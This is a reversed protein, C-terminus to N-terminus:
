KIVTVQMSNGLVNKTLYRVAFIGPLIPLWFTLLRFALVGTFAQGLPVGFAALGVTLAAETAGLGGPTPSSSAVASGGLYVLLVTGFPVYSGFAELSCYFALTYTLTVGLSGFALQMFKSPNSLGHKFVNLTERTWHRLLRKVRPIFLLGVLALVVIVGVLIAQHYDTDPPLQFEGPSVVLVTILLLILHMFIGVIYILSVSAMAEIRKLGNKELYQETLIIGGVGKPTIRNLATTAMQLLLTYSFNLTKTTSGVVVLAAMIYSIASAGLAALLWKIDATKIVSLSQDFEGLKPLLYYISLGIVLLLFFWRYNIRSLRAQRAALSHSQVLVQQTLEQMLEPESRVLKKTAATLALPQLYPLCKKLEKAGLTSVAAKVALKPNTLASSSVLLEVVDKQLAVDGAATQAFSFDIIWPQRRPDIMINATRLDRHAIRHNHLKAVEEWIARLLSENIHGKFQSLIKGEIKQTVVMATKLEVPTALLVKPTHVGAQAAQISIYAEHEVKQKASSFPAEDEVQRLTLYRWSRYLFDANRQETDILKIFVHKGAKTKAYLPTSGRADVEAKALQMVALGAEILTTKIKAYPLRKAPTGFGLNLLSGMVWGIAMGAIIDLPLHAGVYMRSLAVIWVSGWVVYRRRKTLYPTTATAILAAVSAHGSPFGLIGSNHARQVVGSLIYFPRDRDILIKAIRALWWVWVGGTLIKLALRYHKLILAVASAIFVFYLAGGQMITQLVPSLWGPLYNVVRFIAEELQSLHGGLALLTAVIFVLASLILRIIDGPHRPRYQSIWEPLDEKRKKHIPIGFAFNALSAIGIGLAVGGLIDLPLHGGIYMRGFMVVFLTAISIIQWRKSLYYHSLTAITAAVATHGSTFGSSFPAFIERENVDDLLAGPRGRPVIDKILKALYYIGIGGLLLLIALRYRKFYFAIAAVIPITVFVGYQMFPWIIPFLWNPLDNVAHFSTVEWAPPAEQKVLFSMAILLVFAVSAILLENPRRETRAFAKKVAQLYLYFSSEGKLMIRTKKRQIIDGILKSLKVISLFFTFPQIALDIVQIVSTFSFLLRM